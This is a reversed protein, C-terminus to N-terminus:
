GQTQLFEWYSFVFAEESKMRANFIDIIHDLSARFEGLKNDVNEKNEYTDLFAILQEAVDTMKSIFEEKDDTDRGIARIKNLLQPYFINDELALHEKYLSRFKILKNVIENSNPSDQIATNKLVALSSELDKHQQRLTKLTDM